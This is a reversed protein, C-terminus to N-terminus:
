LKIGWGNLLHSPRELPEFRQNIQQVAISQFQFRLSVSDAKVYDVKYKSAQNKPLFIVVSVQLKTILMGELIVIISTVWTELTYCQSIYNIAAIM